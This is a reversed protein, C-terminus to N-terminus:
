EHTTKPMLSLLSSTDGDSISFIFCINSESSDTKNDAVCDRILGPPAEIKVGFM